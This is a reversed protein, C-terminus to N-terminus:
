WSVLGQFPCFKVKKDLKFPNGFTHLRKPQDADLERLPSPINRLYEQYNGMQVIPISHIQDEDQGSFWRRSSKLLNTRMRTLHDLLNTRSIDYANRFTQPKLDKNLLAIQFGAFEKVNLELMRQPMEGTIEQLLLKFDKRVALSPISTGNQVKIGAEQPYKKGISTIVRDSEMKAQQSLKKLYSVVSYSLGYELNEPILNPAGMMRLAKKLPGIYYPPMTKLYSEFLQRWKLSPKAKHIKFLDDLLPLLVPYNYPMVFLNVCNLATSAKLYGFPHGLESYKASNVVFVPWCTHPSKRELIYQTLPSPELEYKDFPLKEIVMPESNTCSFKVIPHATRPPLTPSNQDPWFSEPVPWHGLPVGTKPNPRVYILKRCSHWPQSEAIGDSIRCILIFFKVESFPPDPGSKEFNVVVGSQIKQVLSELCQNLMRQSFVCYSRGGTVDCMPTIPSEDVLVTNGQDQEVSTAGPLRLVLAFLRQDWRFPEKTLESGPLPSNLPLHLVAAQLIRRGLSADASAYTHVKYFKAFTHISSWTAAKCLQLASARHHVAWSAGVARTSHAKIGPPPVRNKVRYAELIAMRIWRAITAKSAPQGRRTGDPIVFFSDTKRFSSTRDLYIRVARVLDLKNLSRELPHTPAPCFSPLVIDENLHFTSVVKPLFSPPPRFVVKDQHIVLFPPCCSLAALESVRRISTIAVLFAVKWSLVSLPIERLPEFPSVKLVDLVLNLDWAEVPARYPPVAHAVGQFFTKVQPRSTLTKQFLISLASVQGKLSSLALGSDLGAHLFALLSPLSFVMPPVRNLECWRFYAKWTRYYIRSSSPKRAQIMTHIVRDSLGSARLVATEVAVGNFQAVSFEPPLDSGPVASRAKRNIRSATLDVDPTGWRLCIQHFVEPHLSWEGAALGERSLFDAAWNDVSPIHVASIVPVTAEAWLLIKSVEALALSSRTGGQHNVYAVATANDTQIRVPPSSPGQPDKGLPPPVSLHGSNRPRQNASIVGAVVLPGSGDPPSFGCGLRDPQRGNDGGALSSSPLVQRVRDQFIDWKDISHGSSSYEACISSAWLLHTRLHPHAQSLQHQDPVFKVVDTPVDARRM